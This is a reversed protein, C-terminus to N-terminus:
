AKLIYNIKEVDSAIQEILDETEIFRKIDRLRQVIDVEIIKDDTEPFNEDTIDLLHVEMTKDKQQFTPIPGYHLAGKYTKNDIVVWVAYIGDDIFFDKPVSLNLTPFGLEKGRGIGKIHSSNFLM